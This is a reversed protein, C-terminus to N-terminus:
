MPLWPLHDVTEQAAPPLYASISHRYFKNDESRCIVLEGRLLYVEGLQTKLLRVHIAKRSLLSPCPSLLRKIPLGIPM